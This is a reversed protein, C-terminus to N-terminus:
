FLGELLLRNVYLVVIAPLCQAALLAWRGQIMAVTCGCVVAFGYALMLRMWDDIDLGWSSPRDFGFPVCLIVLLCCSQFVVPVAAYPSKFWATRKTPPTM